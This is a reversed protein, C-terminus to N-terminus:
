GGTGLAMARSRYLVESSVCQDPAVACPERDVPDMVVLRMLPLGWKVEFVM